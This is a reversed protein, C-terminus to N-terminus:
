KRLVQAVSYQFLDNAIRQWRAEADRLAEVDVKSDETAGGTTAATGAATTDADEMLLTAHELADDFLADDSPGRVVDRAQEAVRDTPVFQLALPDRRCVGADVRVRPQLHKSLPAVALPVSADAVLPPLRAVAVCSVAATHGSFTRVPQRSETDWVLVRGDLSGSVIRTGDSNVAVSTM